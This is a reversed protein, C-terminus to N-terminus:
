RVHSILILNARLSQEQKLLSCNKTELNDPIVLCLGGAGPDRRGGDLIPSPFISSAKPQRTLSDNTM